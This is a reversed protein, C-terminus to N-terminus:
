IRMKLILKMHHQVYKSGGLDGKILTVKFSKNGNGIEGKGKGRRILPTLPFRIIYLNMLFQYLLLYKEEGKGREGKGRGREGKGM